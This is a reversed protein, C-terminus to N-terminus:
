KKFNGNNGNKTKTNSGNKVVGKNIINKNEDINENDEEENEEENEEEEGLAMNNMANKQFNEMAKEKEEQILREETAADIEPCKNRLTSMSIVENQYLTLWVDILAQVNALSVLPITIEFGEPDYIAGEYDHEKAYAMCKIILEKLSEQWILREFLTGANIVELMNEATARANILELWMIWHIPISSEQGIIKANLLMEKTITEASNADTGPFYIKATGAYTFGEGPKIAGSEILNGIVKADQNTKCEFCLINMGYIHNNARLDYLAREYNEIQTLVKGIKTPTEILKDGTGGIKVFVCEDTNIKKEEAANDKSRYKIEKILENDLPDTEIEYNNVYWSFTRIKPVINDKDPLINLLCKGEMEGLRLMEIWRSGRLKNKDLLNDIFKQTAPSKAVISIGAGGIFAVRTDVLGSLIGVGYKSRANYAEYIAKTQTAYNTYNNGRVQNVNSQIVANTTLIDGRQGEDSIAQVKSQKIQKEEQNTNWKIFFHKKAM